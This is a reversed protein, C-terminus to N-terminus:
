RQFVVSSLRVAAGLILMRRWDERWYASSVAPKTTTQSDRIDAVCQVDDGPRQQDIKGSRERQRRSAIQRPSSSLKDQGSSATIAAVFSNQRM